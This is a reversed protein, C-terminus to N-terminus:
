KKLLTNWERKSSNLWLLDKPLVVHITPFSQLYYLGDRREGTGILRRSHLDHIVCKNSSFQVFYNLDDSLKSILNYNLESVYLVHRLYITESIRVSGEKNAMVTQGDPLGLLIAIVEYINVLCNREGIVHRSAGTDIIWM